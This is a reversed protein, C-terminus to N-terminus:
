RHHAADHLELLALHGVLLALHRAQRLLPIVRVPPPLANTISQMLNWQSPKLALLTNKVFFGRHQTKEVGSPLSVLKNVQECLVM